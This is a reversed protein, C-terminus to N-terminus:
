IKLFLLYMVLCSPALTFQLFKGVPIPMHRFSGWCGDRFVNLLLDKRALAKFEASDASIEPLKSSKLNSCLVGRVKEGGAELKVCNLFGALGNIDTKAVVWLRADEPAKEMEKLKANFDELWSCELDDISFVVPPISLEVKKRLLFVTSLVNDSKKYVVEYNQRAFLEVWSGEPLYRGCMRCLDKDTNAPLNQSLADLALFLPFAQTIEEVLIFGEPGVMGSVTDLTKEIDAQKHLVNKLLVLHSQGPPISDSTAPDWQSTKVGLAKADSDLPTKDAATYSVTYMTSKCFPLIKRYLASQSAGVEFLNKKSASTNALAIDVCPKLIEEQDLSSILCDSALESRQSNLVARANEAFSKSASLSFLKVLTKALGSNPQATDVSAGRGDPVKNNAVVEKLLDKNLVGDVSSDADLLKKLGSLAFDLCDSAYQKLAKPTQNDLNETYPVFCCKQIVPQTQVDRKPTVTTHLGQLEVGGCATM